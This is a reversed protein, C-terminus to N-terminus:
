FHKSKNDTSLRSTIILVSISPLVERVSKVTVSNAERLRFVKLQADQNPINHIQSTVTHKLSKEVHNCTQMTATAQL